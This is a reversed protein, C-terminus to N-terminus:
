MNLLVLYRENENVNIIVFQNKESDYEMIRFILDHCKYNSNDKFYVHLM